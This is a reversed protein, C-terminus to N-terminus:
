DRIEPPAAPISPPTYEVQAVKGVDEDAQMIRKIRAVPFKTRINVHRPVEINMPTPSKEVRRPQQQLHEEDIDGPGDTQSNPFFEQSPHPPFHEMHPIFGPMDGAAANYEFDQQHPHLHHHPAHASPADHVPDYPYYEAM